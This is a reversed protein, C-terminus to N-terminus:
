RRKGVSALDVEVIAGLKEAFESLDFPMPLFDWGRRECREEQHVRATLMLVRIGRVAAHEALRFVTGNDALRVDTIALKYRESSDLLRLADAVSGVTICSFGHQGVVRAIADGVDQDSVAILANLM